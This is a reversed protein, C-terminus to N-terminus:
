QVSSCVACQVSCVARQVSGVLVQVPFSFMASLVHVSWEVKGGTADEVRVNYM